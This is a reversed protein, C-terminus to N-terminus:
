KWRMVVRKYYEAKGVLINIQNFVNELVAALDNNITNNLNEYNSVSYDETNLLTWGATTKIDMMIKDGPVESVLIQFKYNGQIVSKYGSPTFKEEETIILGSEKSTGLPYITLGQMQLAVLCASYVKDKTTNSWIAQRICEDPIVRPAPTVCGALLLACLWFLNKKM